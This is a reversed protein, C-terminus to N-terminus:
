QSVPLPGVKVHVGPGVNEAAYRRSAVVRAVQADDVFLVSTMADLAARILKDVDGYRRSVVFEPADLRLERARTITAQRYHSEPRPFRFALGVEIPETRHIPAGAAAKRAEEAIATRWNGLPTDGKAGTTLIARAKRGGKAPIVFAKANGQAVPLGLVDFEIM